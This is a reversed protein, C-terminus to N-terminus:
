QALMEMARTRQAPDLVADFVSLVKSHFDSVSKVNNAREGLGAIRELLATATRYYAMKEKVDAEDIDQSFNRLEDFLKTMEITLQAWTNDADALSKREGGAGVVVIPKIKFKMWVTRLANVVDPDYPCENRELWLPDNAMNDFIVQLPLLWTHDVEPYFSNEM